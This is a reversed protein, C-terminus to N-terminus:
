LNLLLDKRAMIMGFPAFVMSTQRKQLILRTETARPTGNLLSEKAYEMPSLHNLIKKNWRCVMRDCHWATKGDKMEVEMIKNGNPHWESKPGNLKGDSYTEEALLEGTIRFERSIGDRVGNEYSTIRRKRGNYFYETTVGHRKGRKWSSVSKTPSQEFTEIAKGSFLSDSKSANGESKTKRVLGEQDMDLWHLLVTEDGSSSLSPVSQICSSFSFAVLLSCLLTLSKKM